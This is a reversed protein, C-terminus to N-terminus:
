ISGTGTGLTQDVEEITFKDECCSTFTMSLDQRNKTELKTNRMAVIM